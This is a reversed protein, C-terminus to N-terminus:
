DDFEVLLSTRSDFTLEVGNDLELEIETGKVSIGMIAVAPFNVVIYDAMAEPVLDAPVPRAHSKFSEWDGNRRFEVKTGDIFSVEYSIRFEEYEKLVLVPSEGNFHSELFAQAKPPLGDPGLPRSTEVSALVLAATALLAVAAVFWFRKGKLFVATVGTM